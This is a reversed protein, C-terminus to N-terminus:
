QVTGKPEVINPQTPVPDTKPADKDFPPVFTPEPKDVPEDPTVPTATGAPAQVPQPQEPETVPATEIIPEIIQDENPPPPAQVGEPHDTWWLALAIAVVALLVLITFM